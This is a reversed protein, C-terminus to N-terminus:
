CVLENKKDVLQLLKTINSPLSSQPPPPPHISNEVKSEEVKHPDETNQIHKDDDKDSDGNHCEDVVDMSKKLRKTEDRDGDEMASELIVPFRNNKKYRTGMHDRPRRIGRSEEIMITESHFLPIPKTATTPPPPTWHNNRGNPTISSPLGLGPDGHNSGNPHCLLSMTDFLVQSYHSSGRSCRRVTTARPTPPQNSSKDTEYEERRNTRKEEQQQPPPRM